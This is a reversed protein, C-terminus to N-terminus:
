KRGPKRRVKPTVTFQISVATWKEIQMRRERADMQDAIRLIVYGWEEATRKGPVRTVIYPCQQFKRQGFARSFPTIVGMALAYPALHFYYDPDNKLLRDIHEKPLRKMYRRLGLVQGADSRGLESRRGGYAAPYGLLFEGVVCALPIWVQGALFGLIIWLLMSVFGIKMPMKGRLHTRYAMSLILWGTVAGLVGLIVSLLIRLVPILTINAALCIGCFVMSGCCLGQYLYRSGSSTKHMNRESPVTGKVRSCLRAYQVGTADVVRRNGFLAKFIKNEIPSRENGMDMRKHLLVRDGEDLSILIYGLQAWSFVMATLDVGALTLRCGLEGATIGEPPTSTQSPILPRTRLFLLWYLLALGACVAMPIIEPNGERFDMSITPFMSQPVFMTMLVGDHDNLRVKSSGIIQNGNPPLVELDSGFSEQRFTSTFDPRDTMNGNPMVIIFSLQEVPFTFGNLLPLQLQLRRKGSGAVPNGQADTADTAETQGEELEVVKVVDTVTYEFRLSLEGIYDKAIKSIDVLVAADTKSTSVPSGNMTIGKATPPLPFTLDPYSGELRLLVTMTVLCDGESSVTALVDVKSASSEAQAQMPVLCALLVLVTLFAAIRRM